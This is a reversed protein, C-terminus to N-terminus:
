LEGRTGGEGSHIIRTVLSAAARAASDIAVAAEVAATGEESTVEFIESGGGVAIPSFGRSDGKM